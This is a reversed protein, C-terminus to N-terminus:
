AAYRLRERQTSAKIGQASGLWKELFQAIWARMIAGHLAHARVHRAPSQAGPQSLWAAKYAIWRHIMALTIEPHFQFGFAWHGFHFAQNQFVAGEALSVAGHPLTFGEGHWQYVHSPWPGFMQAEDRAAIPEYGAEVRGAHHSHVSAGLYKALMQAGLCIGLIPKGESLPIGIWDIEQKIYDDPDNASMPGGFIIAGAYGGMARPLTDGFRPRRIDLPIRKAKLYQGIAGPESELRHMIILIPQNSPLPQAPCLAITHQPKSMLAAQFYAKFML